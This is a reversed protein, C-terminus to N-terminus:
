LNSYKELYGEYKKRQKKLIDIFRTDNRLNDFYPSTKLFLYSYGYALYSKKISNHIYEIAEDKMGLLSYVVGNKNLELAKGREAKAALLYAKYYSIKPNGPYIKSIKTLIKEAQSYKKLAIFMDSFTINVLLNDPEMELAKKLYFAAKKFEGIKMLSRSITVHTMVSFPDLEIAISYYNIAQHFLGINRLFSGIEKNIISSNPKIELARKYNKYAKDLEVRVLFVTGMAANTEALKSDLAYAKECNKLGLDLEKKEHTINFRDFHAWGLGYYALAYKTDISISKEFMKLAQLLDDPKGTVEYKSKLFYMGKLYYEYAEFNKQPIDKADNITDSIIKVNLALAITKSLENQVKFISQLERDYVESWLQFGDHANILNASVRINNNEKRISGELITVVGLEQGIVKIDKKSNKYRMVSTRSIIKLNGSKSLKGIIEDTMGDCFYEQDKEPSLDVFPLIAISNEWINETKNLAETEKKQLIEKTVLYGALIIISIAAFIKLPKIWKKSQLIPEEIINIESKAGKLKLVEKLKYLDILLENSNQYRKNPEKNLIKRVINELEMPIDTRIGTLPDPDENLISYMIAQDYSGKFPVRGAVMEYMVVGLSWIDSRHDVEDGYTQEPSMYHITGITSSEETLQSVGKLKALGFDLIKVMEEKDIIINHPKIDRHIIGAYHACKLGECIQITTKLVEAVPLLGDTVKDKLTEGEVYEMAIYTQDEHENIEYVTVINPHNLAAAAKAEREFREKRNKDKTFEEPLFKLAVRRDLKTDEALYVIGMGGEGIKKIIKYHSILQGIM